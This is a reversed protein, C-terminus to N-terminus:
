FSEIAASLAALLGRPFELLSVSAVPRLQARFPRAGVDRGAGRPAPGEREPQASAGQGTHLLSRQRLLRTWDGARGAAGHASVRERSPDREAPPPPGRPGRLAIPSRNGLVTAARVGGGVERTGAPSAQAGSAAPRRSWARAVGSHSPPRPDATAGANRPARPAPHRSAQFSPAPRLSYHPPDRSPGFHTESRDQTPGSHTAPQDPAPRRQDRCLSRETPPLAASQSRTPRASRESRQSRPCRDATAGKLRM